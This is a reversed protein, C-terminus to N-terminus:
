VRQANINATYTKSSAENTNLVGTLNVIAGSNITLTNNSSSQTASSSCTNFNGAINLTRPSNVTYYINDNGVNDFM